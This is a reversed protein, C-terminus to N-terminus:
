PVYPITPRHSRRFSPGSSVADFCEFYTSERAWNESGPRHDLITAIRACPTGCWRARNIGVVGGNHPVKLLEDTMNRSDSFHSPLVLM